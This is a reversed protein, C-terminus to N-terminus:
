VKRLGFARRAADECAGYGESHRLRCLEDMESSTRELVCVSRQNTNQNKLAETNAGTSYKAYPLRFLRLTNRSGRWVATYADADRKSSKFYAVACVLGRSHDLFPTVVGKKTTKLPIAFPCPSGRSDLSAIRAPFPPVVFRVLGAAQPPPSPHSTQESAVGGKGNKREVTLPAKKRMRSLFRPNFREGCVGHASLTDGRRTVFLRGCGGSATGEAGKARCM